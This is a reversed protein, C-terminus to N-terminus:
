IKNGISAAALAPLPTEYVGLAGGERDTRVVVVERRPVENAGGFDSYGAAQLLLWGGGEVASIGIVHREVRADGGLSDRPILELPLRPDFIVGLRMRRAPPDDTAGSGSYVDIEARATNVVYLSDNAAEVLGENLAATFQRGPYWQAAGFAELSRGDWGYARVLRRTIVESAAVRGVSSVGLWHEYVREADAAIDFGPPSGSTPDPLRVI